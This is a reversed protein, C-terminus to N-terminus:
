DNIQRETEQQEEHQQEQSENMKQLEQELIKLGKENAVGRIHYNIFQRHTINLNLNDKVGEVWGCFMDNMTGMIYNMIDDPNFDSRYIGERVGQEINRKIFSAMMEKLHMLHKEYLDPYESKFTRYFIVSHPIPHKRQFELVKILVEIANMNESPQQSMYSFYIRTRYTLIDELLTEKDKFNNYLTMKTVGISEALDDMRLAEVGRQELLNYIAEIYIEKKTKKM